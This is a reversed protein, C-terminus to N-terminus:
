YYYECIPNQKFLNQLNQMIAQGTPEPLLGASKGKSGQFLVNPFLIQIKIFLVM